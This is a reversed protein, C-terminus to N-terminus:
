GSPSVHVKIAGSKKDKAVAFAQVADDLSFRHTVLTTTIEQHRTLVDIAELFDHHEENHGYFISPVITVEKMMVQNSLQVPTWFMGFELLQGGPRVAEVCRDFSQQTCVADFTIDYHSEPTTLVRVGLAEAANQQHPHRAVIDVEIGRDRLVAATLLGISGAGVVLGRMNEQLALRNIGHVVVALPEVLGVTAPDVTHPIEYMRGPDVRAYEALGGDLALGYLTSGAEPCTQPTHMVCSPCHGCQGTPRVAVLQGNPTFGGFEHGLVVGQVGMEIMHLDSGCIGSSTIKILEGPEDPIERNIVQVQGQHSTVALM